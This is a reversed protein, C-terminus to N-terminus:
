FKTFMFNCVIVAEIDGVDLSERQTEKAAIANLRDGVADAFHWNRSDRLDLPPRTSILELQHGIEGVFVVPKETADARRVLKENAAIRTIEPPAIEFARLRAREDDGNSFPPAQDSPADESHAFVAQRPAVREEIRHKEVGDFDQNAM